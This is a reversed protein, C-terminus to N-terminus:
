ATRPDVGFVGKKGAMSEIARLYSDRERGMPEHRRRYDYKDAFERLDAKLRQWIETQVSIMQQVHGANRIRRLAMQFHPLCLGQSDRYANQLREDDFTSVFAALNREESEAMMECARCTQVPQLAEALPAADLRERNDLLQAFGRAPSKLETREIVTLVEDLAAQCSTL